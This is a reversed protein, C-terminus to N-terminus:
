QGFGQYVAQAIQRGIAPPSTNQATNFTAGPMEDTANESRLWVPVSQAGLLRALEREVADSIAYREGPAFGHLVLEDIHLEISPQPRLAGNPGRGKVPNLESRRSKVELRKSRVESTQRRGEAKRDNVDM